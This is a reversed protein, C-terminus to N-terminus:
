GLSLNVDFVCVLVIFFNPLNLNRSSLLERKSTEMPRPYERLVPTVSCVKPTLYTVLILALIGLIALVSLIDLSKQSIM